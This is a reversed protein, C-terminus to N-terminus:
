CCHIAECFLELFVPFIFRAKVCALSFVDIKEEQLGPVERGEGDEGEGGQVGVGHGAPDHSIKPAKIIKDNDSLSSSERSRTKNKARPSSSLKKASKAAGGAHCPSHRPQGSLGAELSPTRRPLRRRPASSRSRTEVSRKAPEPSPRRALTSLPLQKVVKKPEAVEPKKVAVPKKTAGPKKIPEDTMFVQPKRMQTPELGVSQAMYAVAFM